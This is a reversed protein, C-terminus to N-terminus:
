LLFNFPFVTLWTLTMVTCGILGLVLPARREALNRWRLVQGSLVAFAIAIAAAHLAGLQNTLYYGNAFAVADRPPMWEAKAREGLYDASLGPPGAPPAPVVWGVPLLAGLDDPPMTPAGAGPEVVAAPVGAVKPPDAPTDASASQLTRLYAVVDRLDDDSLMPNGGRPPMQVKTTNLADWPQRGVKVFNLLKADDLGGIFENAILSKGQGPLGEGRAGHCSVCTGLFLRRGNAADVTRALPKATAFAREAAPRQKPLKVGFRRAVYRENPRFREAPRIGYAWKADLDVALTAIFGLCCLTTLALAGSTWCRNTRRAFHLAAGAALTALVLLGAGTAALPVNVLHRGWEWASPHAGRAAVCLAAALLVVFVYVAILIYIDMTTWGAARFLEGVQRRLPPTIPASARPVSPSDVAHVAYPREAVPAQALITSM